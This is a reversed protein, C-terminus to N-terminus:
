SRPPQLPPASFLTAVAFGPSLRFVGADPRRVKPLSPALGTMHATAHCCHDCDNDDLASQTQAHMGGAAHDADELAHGAFAWSTGYGLITVVLISAILRQLM